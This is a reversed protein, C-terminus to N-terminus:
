ALTPEGSLTLTISATLLDALPASPGFATIYASFADESAGTDTYILKFNRLTRNKFDNRLGGAGDMHTPEAPDYAIDFTVEGANLFSPIMEGWAGPSDHAKADITEASMNPGNIDRVGAITTFGETPTAGDGIQLQTGFAAIRDSM